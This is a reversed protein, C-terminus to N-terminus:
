IQYSKIKEKQATYEQWTIDPLTCGADKLVDVMEKTFIADVLYSAGINTQLKNCSFYIETYVTYRVSDSRSENEKM